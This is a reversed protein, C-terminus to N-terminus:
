GGCRDRGLEVTWAVTGRTQQTAKPRTWRGLFQSSAEFAVANWTSWRVSNGCRGTRAQSWSAEKWETRVLDAFHVQAGWPLMCCGHSWSSGFFPACDARGCGVWWPRLVPNHSAVAVVAFNSALRTAARKAVLRLEV